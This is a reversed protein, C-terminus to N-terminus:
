SAVRKFLPGGDYVASLRGLAYTPSHADAEPHERTGETRLIAANAM